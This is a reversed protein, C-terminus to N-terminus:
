PSTLGLYCGNVKDPINEKRINGSWRWKTKLLSKLLSWRPPINIKNMNHNVDDTVNKETVKKSIKKNAKIGIKFLYLM